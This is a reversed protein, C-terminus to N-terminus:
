IKIHTQTNEHPFPESSTNASSVDNSSYRKVTALKGRIILETSLGFM